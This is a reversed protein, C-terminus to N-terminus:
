YFYSSYSYTLLYTLLCIQVCRVFFVTVRRQLQWHGFLRTKLARRFQGLTIDSEWLQTPLSNWVRPGAAAFSRDGLRTNTQQALCTDIDSSRLQRRETVSVLQCYYSLEDTHWFEFLVFIQGNSGLTGAKSTRQNRFPVICLFDLVFKHFAQSEDITHETWAGRAFNDGSLRAPFIQETM